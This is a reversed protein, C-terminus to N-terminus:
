RRREEQATIRLIQGPADTLVYIAGDPGVVPAYPRGETTLLIEWHQVREGALHLLASQLPAVGTVLAKGQSEPVEEGRYFALGSVGISPRWFWAPQEIDEGRRDPTLVTGDYNIGHSGVPRGYDRG